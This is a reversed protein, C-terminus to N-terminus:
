LGKQLKKQEMQASVPDPDLSIQFGSGSGTWVGSGVQDPNLRFVPDSVRLVGESLFFDTIQLIKYRPFYMHVNNFKADSPKYKDESHVVTSAFRVVLLLQAQFYRLM